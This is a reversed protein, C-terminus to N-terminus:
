SRKPPKPDLPQRFRSQKAQANPRLTSERERVYHPTQATGQHFHLDPVLLPGRANQYRTLARLTISLESAAREREPTALGGTAISFSRFCCKNDKQM